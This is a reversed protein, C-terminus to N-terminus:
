YLRTLKEIEDGGSGGEGRVSAPQNHYHGAAFTTSKVKNGMTERQEEDKIGIFGETDGKNGEGGRGMPKTRNM